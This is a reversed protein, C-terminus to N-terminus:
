GGGGLRSQNVPSGLSSSKDRSVFGTRSKRVGKREETQRPAGGGWGGEEGRERKWKVGQLHERITKVEAIM